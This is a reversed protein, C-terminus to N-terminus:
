SGCLIARPRGPTPTLMTLRAGLPSFGHRGDIQRVQLSPDSQAGMDRAAHFEGATAAAVEEPTAREVVLAGRTEADVVGLPEKVAEPAASVAINEVPPEMLQNRLVVKGPTVAVTEGPRFKEMGEPAAEAFNREADDMANAFGRMLNAGGEENTARIVDPNTAPWNSPSFVDLAQRAMFEVLRLHHPSAGRVGTTAEKWWAETLQFGDAMLRFPWQNWAEGKFRPDKSAAHVADSGDVLADTAVKGFEMWKHMASDVLAGLKGPSSALHM